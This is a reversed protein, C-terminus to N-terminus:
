PANVPNWTVAGADGKDCGDLANMEEESLNFDYVESNARVREPDVSKPLPVFDHQLSWRILVQAPSKNHTNCIKTLVPDDFYKGRTLPTYAQVVIGQAACYETIPRQQCWPHLELQNVAPTPLGAAKIEELHKVGYNSVGITRFKGEKQKEVLARWTELRKEKGSLPDHILYLDLYNFGFNTLSEELAENAEDYGHRGSYVKSTIFLQDRPILSERVAEGVGEENRYFLASDVHRYGATFAAQCAPGVDDNMYVGLGLRPM